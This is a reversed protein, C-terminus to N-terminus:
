ETDRDPDLIAQIFAVICVPIFGYLFLVWARDDLITYDIGAAWDWHLFVEIMYILLAVGVCQSLYKIVIM